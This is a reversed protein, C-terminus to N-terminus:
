IRGLVMSFLLFVALIPKIIEYRGTGMSETGLNATRVQSTGIELYSCALRTHLSLAGSAHRFCILKRTSFRHGRTSRNAGVDSRESLKRM